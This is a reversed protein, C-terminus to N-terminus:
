CYRRDVNTRWTGSFPPCCLELRRYDMPGIPEFTFRHHLQRVDSHRDDLLRPHQLYVCIAVGVLVLIWILYIWLCLVPLIALAGYIKGVMSSSAFISVYLGFVFRLLLFVVAVIIASTLAPKTKVQRHPVLKYVLFLGAVILIFSLVGDFGVGMVQESSNLNMRQGILMAVVVSAPALSLVAYFTMFRRVLNRSKRARWLHNVSKEVSLMLSFITPLLVGLGILGLASQTSQTLFAEFYESLEKVNDAMFTDLIWAQLRTSIADEPVLAQIVSFFVAFLPVLAVVSGFTLAAAKQLVSRQNLDSLARRILRLAVTLHDGKLM